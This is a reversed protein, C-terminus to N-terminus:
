EIHYALSHALKRDEIDGKYIGFPKNGPGILYIYTTHDVDDKAVSGGPKQAYVKYNKQAERISPWKGTLGIIPEPYLSLYKKLAEPTDNEPDVTIFLIQLKQKDADSLQTYARGIKQLEVPCIEPCFTFGYYVLLYKDKFDSAQRPANNHDILSFNPNFEMAILEDAVNQPSKNWIAWLALVAIVLLLALWISRSNM